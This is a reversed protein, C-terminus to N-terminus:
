EFDRGRMCVFYNGHNTPHMGQVCWKFAQDPILGELNTIFCFANKNPFIKLRYRQCLM